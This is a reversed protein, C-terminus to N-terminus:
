CSDFSALTRLRMAMRLSFTMGSSSLYSKRLREASSAEFHAAIMSPFEAPEGWGSDFEAAAASLEVSAAGPEFVSFPVSAAGAADSAAAGAASEVSSFFSSDSGICTSVFPSSLASSGLGDSSSGLFTSSSVGAGAASSDVAQVVNRWRMSCRGREEVDDTVRSEATIVNYSGNGLIGDRRDRERRM